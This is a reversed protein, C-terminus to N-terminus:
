NAGSTGDRPAPPRVSSSLRIGERVAGSVTCYDEFVAVSRDFRERDEERLPRVEITVEMSLVRQRGKPNRGVEVRVATTIPTVEVHARQLTSYLTSGMCHAVSAALVRVPSPGRDQGVPPPEDVMVKPFQTSPFRVVFEYRDAQQAEAVSDPVTPLAGLARPADRSILTRGAGLARV